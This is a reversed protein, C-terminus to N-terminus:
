SHLVAGPLPVTYRTVSSVCYGDRPFLNLKKEMLYEFGHSPYESGHSPLPNCSDVWHGLLMRKDDQSFKPLEVTMTERSSVTMVGSM